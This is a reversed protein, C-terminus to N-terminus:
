KKLIGIFCGSEVVLLSTISKMEMAEYAQQISVDPSITSPNVTVIDRAVIKFTEVGKNEISRRIDGDTIIGYQGNDLSVLTLGIGSNSISKIITMLGSDLEIKPIEVSIMEDRVRSLLKKGLSGGPHFRAFNEPKFERAEMLAIALADGLVLTATTSTTPALQLPCAEKPVSIDLHCHSSRSLTSEKKGTISIVYNGNDKLFPVLKLVEDTEGSNSIAIFIDESKVMGLDGHFAEGPHMFFSPTGTSALSAAIKKGIIGSKGMGCVIVRGSTSVIKEVATTFSEDLNDKLVLLGQTEVDIVKKAIEVPNIKM